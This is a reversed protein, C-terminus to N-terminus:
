LFCALAARSGRRPRAASAVPARARRAALAPAGLAALAVPAAAQTVPAAGGGAVAEEIKQVEETTWNHAEPNVHSDVFDVLKSATRDDVFEDETAGRYFKVTPFGEVGASECEKWDKGKAWGEGFCEKQSWVVGGDEGGNAERWQQQADKWVPELDQCHPCDKAYYEVVRATADGPAVAGTTDLEAKSADAAVAGTTDLDAKPGSLQSQLFDQIGDVSREDEYEVGHGRASPFFKITPFSEVGQQQCEAYDRGKAWGPGFCEKQEWTVDAGDGRHSATWAHQADRWVPALSVCHPCDKAYYEVMHPGAPEAAAGAAAPWHLGSSLSGLAGAAVRSVSGWASLLPSPDLFSVLERAAPSHAVLVDHVM